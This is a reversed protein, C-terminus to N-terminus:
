NLVSRPKQYINKKSDVKEQCTCRVIRAGSKKNTKFALSVVNAPTNGFAQLDANKFVTMLNFAMTLDGGIM